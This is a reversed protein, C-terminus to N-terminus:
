GAHNSPRTELIGPHCVGLLHPHPVGSFFRETVRVISIDCFSARTDLAASSKKRATTGGHNAM